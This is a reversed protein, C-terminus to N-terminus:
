LTINELIIKKATNIKPNGGSDLNIQAIAEQLNEALAPSSEVIKLDFEVREKLNVANHYQHRDKHPYPIIISPKSVVELESITSAGGRCIILDAQQYFDAMDYIYEHAQYQEESYTKIRDRYEQYSQGLQHQIKFKSTIEKSNLLKFVSENIEKAGLSGGFILLNKKQCDESKEKKVFNFRIPNGTVLSKERYAENFGITKEFNLFIKAAFKCLLKNTMGMVSNQELVYVPIGLVKAAMGVPGCIYGGCGLFIKIKQTKLLYLSKLFVLLNFFLNLPLQIKSKGVFPKANLNFSPGNVDKFLKYDLDRTGSIYVPHACDEGLALAANIHGGTGGAVLAIKQDFKKEM